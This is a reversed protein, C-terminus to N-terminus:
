QQKRVSKKKDAAAKKKTSAKKKAVAKKGEVIQSAPAKEEALAFQGSGVKKFLRKDNRYLLVRLQNKFNASSTKYGKDNLLSDAIENVSVPGKKEQLVQIILSQISPQSTKRRRAAPKKTTTASTKKAARTKSTSAGLSQEISAIQQDVSSLDKELSSKKELLKELKEKAIIMSKLDCLSTSKLMKLLHSQGM